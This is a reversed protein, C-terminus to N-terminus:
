RNMKTFKSIDEIKQDLKKEVWGGRSVIFFTASFILIQKVVMALFLIWTIFVPTFLECIIILCILDVTRANEDLFSELLNYAKVWKTKLAPKEKGESLAASSTEKNNKIHDSIRDASLHEQFLIGYAFTTLRACYGLLILPILYYFINIGSKHGVYFGLGIQFCLSGIMGGYHDLVGGTVSVQGKLRAYHGDSWDLIGKSFFIFVATVIAIKYPMSLLVGAILGLLIYLISLTNPKVESNRLIYVLLSSFETYFRSKLFTYPSRKWNNIYPVFSGNYKYQHLRIERLSIKDKIM